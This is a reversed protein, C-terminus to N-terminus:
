DGLRSPPREPRAGCGCACGASLTEIGWDPHHGNLGLIPAQRAAGLLTEIGWDPHHGNLRTITHRM